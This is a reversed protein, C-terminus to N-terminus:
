RELTVTSQVRVDLFSDQGSTVVNLIVVHPGKPLSRNFGESFGEVPHSTFQRGNAKLSVLPNEHLERTGRADTSQGPALSSVTIEDDPGTAVRVDTMTVTSANRVVVSYNSVETASSSCGAVATFMAAALLVLLARYKLEGEPLQSRLDHPAHALRADRDEM